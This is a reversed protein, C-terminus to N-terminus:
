RCPEMCRIGVCDMALARGAAIQCRMRDRAGLGVEVAQLM